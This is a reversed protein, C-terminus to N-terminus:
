TKAKLYVPFRNTGLNKNLFSFILLLQGSVPTAWPTLPKGRADKGRFKTQPANILGTHRIGLKQGTKGFSLLVSGMLLVAVTSFSGASGEGHRDLLVEEQRLKQM